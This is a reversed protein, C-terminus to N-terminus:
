GRFRVSNLGVSRQRGGFPRRAEASRRGRREKDIYHSIITRVMGQKISGSNKDELSASNESSAEDISFHLIVLCLILTLKSM